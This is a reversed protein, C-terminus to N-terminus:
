THSSNLRTSKRDLCLRVRHVIEDPRYPLCIYDDVDVTGWDIDNLRIDRILVIVPLRGLFPDNKLHRILSEVSRGSTGETAVIIHPPDHVLEHLAITTLDGAVVQFGAKTLLGSLIAIDGPDNHLILVRQAVASKTM